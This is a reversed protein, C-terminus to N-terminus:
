SDSVQVNKPDLTTTSHPDRQQLASKRAHDEGDVAHLSVFAPCKKVIHIAYELQTLLLCPLASSMVCCECRFWGFLGGIVM